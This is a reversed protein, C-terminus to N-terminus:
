HLVVAATGIAVVSVFRLDFQLRLCGVLGSELCMGDRSALFQRRGLDYGFAVIGFYEPGAVVVGESLWSGEFFAVRTLDVTEAFMHLVLWFMDGEIRVGGVLLAEGFM